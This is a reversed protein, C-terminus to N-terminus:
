VWMGSLFHVTLWCLFTLLIFRRLQWWRGKNKISFWVLVHETLTDDTDKDWLALGEIAIFAGIWSLWAATYLSM